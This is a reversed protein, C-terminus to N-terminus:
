VTGAPRLWARPGSLAGCVVFASRYAAVITGALVFAALWDFLLFLTVHITRSTAAAHRSLGRISQFKWTKPDYGVEYLASVQTRV